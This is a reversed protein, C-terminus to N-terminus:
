VCNALMLSCVWNRVVTMCTCNQTLLDRGQLTVDSLVTCSVQLLVSTTFVKCESNIRLKGVGQLVIGVPDEEDCLTTVTDSQTAVNIWENDM